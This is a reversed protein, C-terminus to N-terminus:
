CLGFCFHSKPFDNDLLLLFADLLFHYFLQLGFLFSFAHFLNALLEYLLKALLLSFAM